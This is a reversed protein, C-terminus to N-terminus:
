RLSGVAIYYCTTKGYSQFEFGTSTVNRTHLSTLIMGEPIGWAKYLNPIIAALGSNISTQTNVRQSEFAANVKDRLDDVKADLSNLSDRTENLGKELSDIVDNVKVFAAEVTKVLDNLGDTLGKIAWGCTFRGLSTPVHDIAVSSISIKAGKPVETTSVVITPAKPTPVAGKRAEGIAAVSPETLVRPFLVRYWLGARDGYAKGHIIVPINGGVQPFVLAQSSLIKASMPVEQIIPTEVPIRKKLGSVREAVMDRLAM